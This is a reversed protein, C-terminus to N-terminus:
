SMIKLQLILSFEFDKRLIKYVLQDQDEVMNNGDGVFARLTTGCNFIQLCM